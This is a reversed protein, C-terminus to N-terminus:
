ILREQTPECRNVWGENRIIRGISAKSVGYVSAIESYSLTDALKRIEAVDSVNLKSFHNRIPSTKFISHLLKTLASDPWGLERRRTLTKYPIGIRKSLEALSIREGQHEVRVSDTRNNMQEIKTAWRVNGPEYNGNPNPYRDISHGSSPRLGVYALFAQFSARWEPYVEIGRGGYYHYAADTPCACRSKMAAWAKYEPTRMLPKVTRTGAM